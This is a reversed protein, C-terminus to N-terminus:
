EETTQNNEEKEHTLKEMFAEFEAKMEAIKSDIYENSNITKNIIEKKKIEYNAKYEAVILQVKRNPITELATLMNNQLDEFESLMINVKNDCDLKTQECTQEIEKITLDIEGKFKVMEDKNDKFDNKVTDLEKRGFKTNTMIFKSIIFAILGGLTITVGAIVIPNDLVKMINNVVEKAQVPFVFCLVTVALALIYLTWKIVKKM